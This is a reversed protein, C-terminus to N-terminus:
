VLGGTVLDHAGIEVDASPATVDAGDVGPVAEIVGVLRSVRVAAGWEWTTPSLYKAVAATVAADVVASSYGPQYTWTAEVDVDEIVPAQVHVGVMEASALDTLTGALETMVPGSLAAGSPALALVTVHGYDDGESEPDDGDWRQVAHARGVRVDTEARWAFQAPRVLCQSAAMRWGSWRALYAADSEADAGATAVDTIEVLDVYGVPDMLMVPTVVTLGTVAGAAEASATGTGVTEGPAVTIDTDLVLVVPDDSTTITALLRTTGAPLTHGLSDGMTVTVEVSAATGVVRALGDLGGILVGTAAPAAELRQLLVAVIPALEEVLTIGVDGERPEWDPMLEGARDTALDVLAEELAVTDTTDIGTVDVDSFGPLDISTM